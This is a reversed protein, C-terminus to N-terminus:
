LGLGPVRYLGRTPDRGGSSKALSLAIAVGVGVLVGFLVTGAPPSPWCYDTTRFRAPRMVEQWSVAHPQTSSSRPSRPKLLNEILPGAVFLVLIVVAAAVLSYLQSHARAAIALATRSGSSSVPFGSM